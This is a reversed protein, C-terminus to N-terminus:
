VGTRAYKRQRTTSLVLRSGGKCTITNSRGQRDRHHPHRLCYRVEPVGQGGGPREGSRQLTQRHGLVMGGITGRPSYGRREHRGGPRRRPYRGAPGGPALRQLASNVHNFGYQNSNKAPGKKAGGASFPPNMLIVTPQIAPDMLANIIEGDYATGQGFGAADLMDRRRESIENVYVTAGIAKPWVALGGNGASPELVVDTPKLDAVRAVVFSETPPTSFQQFKDQEETRVGQSTIRGMLERLDRLGDEVPRSMLDAGREILFRNIGSEMADFMDKPTWQGSTRPSGFHQEALKTLETVNGLSQGARLRTYVAQALARAGGSPEPAAVIEEPATVPVARYKEDDFRYNIADSTPIVRYDEFGTWRSRLEKAAKDAEEASGFRQGNATWGSEGRAKVDVRYSVPKEPAGIEQPRPQAPSEKPAEEIIKLRSVPYGMETGNTTRVWVRPSGREAEKFVVGQRTKGAFELEVKTGVPFDERAALEPSKLSTIKPGSVAPKPAKSEPLLAKKEGKLPITTKAEDKGSFDLSNFTIKEGTLGPASKGIYKKGEGPKVYALTIHPKYVPHTDGSTPLTAIKKNLRVLDPSAVDLKVVDYKGGTESAPFVSIRGIRASIPGEGELLKKVNTPEDDDLGYKATIHFETERGKDALESDPIGLQQKAHELPM